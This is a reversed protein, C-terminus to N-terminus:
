TFTVDITGIAFNLSDGSSVPKSAALAGFGLCNGSSSADWISIYTITDTGAASTFTVAADNDVLGSSANNWGTCQVRSAYATSENGTGNAGPGTSNHCQIYWASPQGGGFATGNYLYDAIGNRAYTSLTM